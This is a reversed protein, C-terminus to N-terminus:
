ASTCTGLGRQNRVQEQPQVRSHEDCHAVSLTAFSCGFSPSGPVACVTRIGSKRCEEDHRRNDQKGNKRYCHQEVHYFESGHGGLICVGQVGNPAGKEFVVRM